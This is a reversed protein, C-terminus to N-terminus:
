VADHANKEVRLAVALKTKLLVLQSVVRELSYQQNHGVAKPHGRRSLDPECLYSIIGLLDASIVNPLGINIESLVRTFAEQVYPLVEEYTGGWMQPHHQPDLRGIIGATVNTGSFMFAALNGLMFMDAGIRRPGFDRAVHGYLFEPPAYNWDGPFPFDDHFISKGLQSARGFDTIKFDDSGFTLVNSPKIDQHAIRERHVQWLGLAVSSLAEMCWAADAATLTDMQCRVDGEAMDFILYYVRGEMTSLGPVDVSGHAIAHSVRSMRKGRCHDLVDRENEFAAIFQGLEKLTDAQPEFARSFDLAKVFATKEDRVALYRQSFFGGSGNAPRGIEEKVQWGDALTM